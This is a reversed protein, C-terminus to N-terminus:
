GLAKGPDGITGDHRELFPECPAEATVDDASDCSPLLGVKRPLDGM